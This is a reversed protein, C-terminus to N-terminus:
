LPKVTPTVVKKAPHLLIHPLFGHADNLDPHM